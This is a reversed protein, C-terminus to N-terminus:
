GLGRQKDVVSNPSVDIRSFVVQLSFGARYIVAVLVSLTIIALGM